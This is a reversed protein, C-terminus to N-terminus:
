SIYLLASFLCRPINDPIIGATSLVLSLIYVTKMQRIRVLKGKFDTHKQLKKAVTSHLNHRSSIAVGVSHAETITKDLIIRDPRNNHATRYRLLGTM